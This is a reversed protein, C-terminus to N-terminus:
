PLFASVMTSWTGPPQCDFSSKWERDKLPEPTANRLPRAYTQGALLDVHPTPHHLLVSTTGAHLSNERYAADWRDVDMPALAHPPAHNDDLIVSPPPGGRFPAAPSTGRGVPPVPPPPPFPLDAPGQSDTCFIPRPGERLFYFPVLLDDQPGPAAPLAGGTTQATKLLLLRQAIMTNAPDPEAARAYADIADSIQNNCSEYLSGLDFWDELIYPNICIARLYADLADRYQNSEFYLVGIPCWFTPNQRDRYMAQQYAEYVKNYKQGAMYARGLPYWSLPIHLALYKGAELSKTLYQIALDQNQKGSGDQHYIRGLQQLVNTYGPNDSVVHEYGDRMLWITHGNTFM